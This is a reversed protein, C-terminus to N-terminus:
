LADGRTKMAVRLFVFLAADILFLEADLGDDIAGIRGPGDKKTQGDAATLAVIVFEIRQGLALIVLKESEEVAAILRDSSSGVGSCSCWRRSTPSRMAANSFCSLVSSVAVGSRTAAHSPLRVGSDRAMSGFFSCAMRAM